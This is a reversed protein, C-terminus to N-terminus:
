PNFQEFVLGNYKYAGNKHTGLWIDGRNDKFISFLLVTSDGEQIPYHILKEGDSRWAGEEYTVMWIDGADDKVMSM